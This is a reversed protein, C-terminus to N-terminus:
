SRRRLRDPGYAEMEAVYGSFLCVEDGARGLHWDIDFNAYFVHRTGPLHFESYLEITVFRRYISPFDRLIRDIGTVVIARFKTM